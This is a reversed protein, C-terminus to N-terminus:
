RRPPGDNHRIAWSDMLQMRQGELVTISASLAAHRAELVALALKRTAKAFPSADAKMLARREALMVELAERQTYLGELRESIATIREGTPDNGRIPHVPAGPRLRPARPEVPLTYRDTAAAASTPVYADAGMGGAPVADKAPDKPPAAPTADKTPPGPPLADPGPM